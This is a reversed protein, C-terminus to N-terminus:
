SCYAIAPVTKGVPPTIRYVCNRGGSGGCNETFTQTAGPEINVAPSLSCTTDQSPSTQTCTLSTINVTGINRIIITVTNGTCYADVIEIGQMQTTFIGSIYVYAMGALAITIMLMLITAVVASVGKM